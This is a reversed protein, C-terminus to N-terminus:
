STTRAIGILTPVRVTALVHRADIDGVMRLVAAAAAPSASNRLGRAWWQEFSEDGVMSPAFLDLLPGNAWEQEVYQALEAVDESPPLWDHDESATFRMQTGYLVLHSVREPYTAAFLVSMPGGESVGFVAARESGAADMVARVDDMREELTPLESVPVRDSLGTGRKDFLILRAFSSLREMFRALHPAEWALEVHSVFGPVFVLDVDGDGVVQYAINYSGAGKAYRTEPASRM